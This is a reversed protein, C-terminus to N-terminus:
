LKPLLGDREFWLCGAGIVGAMDVPLAGLEIQLGFQYFPPCARQFGRQLGEVLEQGAAALGGSILVLELDLLLHINAIVSGLAQYMEEVLQIARQDGRRVRQYLDGNLGGLRRMIAGPAYLSEVSVPPKESPYGMLMPGVEVSSGHPGVHMKGDLLLGGGIGTGLTLLLANKCGRAAGFHVEGRLALDADNWVWCPRGLSTSLKQSLPYNGLAPLTVLDPLLQQDHLVMGALGVVVARLKDPQTMTIVRKTIFEVLEDGSLKWDVPERHFQSVVGNANVLGFRINTGGLDIGLVQSDDEM